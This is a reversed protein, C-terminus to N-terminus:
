IRKVSFTNPFFLFSAPVDDTLYKQFDSYLEKRANIDTVKRGDELLKDIRLNKYHSINSIQSSHWLSYQDPDKPVIFEGLFVQFSTPISPVVEIKTEVDIKKWNKAVEKAVSEYQPLTKLNVTLTSSGSASSQSLQLKSYTFDQTVPAVTNSYAWLDKPYPSQSRSGEKFENPLAYSLAKRVKKDSLVSDQTNFFLTTLKQNDIDKNVETNKFKSLDMGKYSLTQIGKIETVEGLVFATKLAEQTPYFVYKLTQNSDNRSALEISQIFGADSKVKKVKFEGIGVFNDKFIGREVTVLFPSYRDKLRFVIVKDSPREVKADQFGYDINESVLEEGDTFTIDDKLYFVYTRGGDRIEWKGAAGPKVEGNGDVKTLGYSIKEMIEPPLNDINYSGVLGITESRSIPVKSLILSRNFFLFLFVLLGIGFSIFITKGWRKLYARILWVILRRRRLFFM